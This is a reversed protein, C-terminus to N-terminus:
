FVGKTSLRSAFWHRMSGAALYVLSAVCLIILALRVTSATSVSLGIGTWLAIYAAVCAPCKPLLALITSPILWRLASGIFLAIRTLPGRGASPQACCVRGSM